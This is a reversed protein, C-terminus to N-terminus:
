FKGAAEAEKDTKPLGSSDRVQKWMRGAWFPTAMPVSRAARKIDQQSWDGKFSHIMLTSIDSGLQGNPGMLAGATSRDKWRDNRNHLIKDDMLVNLDEVIPTMFSFINSDELAMKWLHEDDKFPEEGRSIRRMPQIMAGTSLTLMSGLFKEIDPNQMLPLSYRTISSFLFGTFMYLSSLFPDDFIFPSDFMGRRVITDRTARTLTESFKKIAEPDDAWKWYRSGYGGLGNADSGASKWGNVFRDAWEKPDLGMLLLKNLDKKSLTGKQHKIMSAMIKSQITSATIRQLWNEVYNTGFFNGSKHAIKELAGMYRSSTPFYPMADQNAYRSSYASNEHNLALNAHAAIEKYEEAQATKLKGNFTKLMPMVGDRISPWIGHKFTIGMTDAAMTLPVGGLKTSVALLLSARQFERAKRSGPLKGKMKDLSHGVDEKAKKFDKELKALEKAQKKPTLGKKLIAAEQNRRDIAIRELLVPMDGDFTVDNYVEKMFRRRGLYNRYNIVNAFPDTHMFKNSYLSEDPLMMTRRMLSGPLESGTFIGAIQSITDEPTQNLINERYVTAQNEMEFKTKPFDGFKLRNNHDKFKVVGTEPDETFFTNDIEGNKARQQLAIEEDLVNNASINFDDELAKVQPELSEIIGQHKEVTEKTKAKIRASKARSLKANIESLSKKAKDRILKKESLPKLIGKLEKGENASLATLDDVLIRMDPDERLKNQLDEELSKHDANRAELEMRSKKIEDSTTKEDGLLREHNLKAAEISEKASNIPALHREQIKNAKPFWELYMDKWDIPRQIIADNNYVRALFGKATKPAFIKESLNFAKKTAIYDTDMIKRLMGAAENVAPHVNTDDRIIANTVEINFDDRSVYDGSNKIKKLMSKTQSAPQNPDIGNRENWLARGMQSINKNEGALTMMKGEFTDPRAIGKETGKTIFGHEAARNIFASVSPFRSNLMRFIPNFTAAAKGFFQGIKPIGFLGNKAFQDDAFDQADKLSKASVSNGEMAIAKYSTIKGSDGLIPKLEVGNFIHKIYARADWYKAGNYAKSLGAGGAVMASGMAIDTFTDVAFDATNGGIVQTQKWAEHAISSTAIHPLTREITTLASKSLAPIKAEIGAYLYTSPSTVLGLGGGLLSAVLSGNSYYQDESQRDRLMDARRRMDRPGTSQLLTGFYIPSIDPYKQLEDKPTWDDPVPDNLIDNLNTSTSVGKAGIFFDNTEAFAHRASEFFGPVRPSKTGAGKFQEGTFFEHVNNAFKFNVPFNVDAKSDNLLGINKKVDDPLVNQQEVPHEPLNISIEDDQQVIRHSENQM